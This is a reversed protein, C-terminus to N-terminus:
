VSNKAVASTMVDMYDSARRLAAMVLAMPTEQTFTITWLTLVHGLRVAEPNFGELLLLTSREDPAARVIVRLSDGRWYVQGTTRDVGHWNAKTTTRLGFGLNKMVDDTLEDILAM